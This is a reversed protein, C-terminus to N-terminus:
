FALMQWTSGVNAQLAAGRFDPFLTAYTVNMAELDFLAKGTERGPITFCTLADIMGRFALYSAIDRYDSHLLRTFLGRQAKQWYNLNSLSTLCEFEDERWMDSRIGLRWVAVTETPTFVADHQLTGSSLRGNNARDLADTFAFFAAVYPSSTWDLLNSCLGHHRALAEIDIEDLSTIDGGPLGTALHKFYNVQGRTVEAPHFNVRQGRRRMEMVRHFDDRHSPAVLPWDAVAQGRFVPEIPTGDRERMASCFDEWTRCHIVTTTM